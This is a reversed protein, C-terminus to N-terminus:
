KLQWQKEDSLALNHAIFTVRIRLFRTKELTNVNTKEIMMTNWRIFSFETCCFPKQKYIEVFVQYTYTPIKGVKCYKINCNYKYSLIINQQTTTLPWAEKRIM